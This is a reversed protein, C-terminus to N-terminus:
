QVDSFRPVKKYEIMCQSLLIKVLQVTSQLVHMTLGHNNRRLTEM